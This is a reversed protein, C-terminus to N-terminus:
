GPAPVVECSGVPGATVDAVVSSAFGDVTTVGDETPIQDLEETTLPDVSWAMVFTEGDRVAGPPLTVRVLDQGMSLRMGVRRDVPEYRGDACTSRGPLYTVDATIGHEALARELGAADEPRHIEVEIEGANGEQVSYAPSTGLGPVLVVGVIATAAVAAAAALPRRTRRPTRGAMSTHDAVERRLDALLRAEFPDLQTQPTM